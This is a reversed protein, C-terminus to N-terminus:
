KIISANSNEINVITKEDFRFTEGIIEFTNISEDIELFKHEIIPLLSSLTEKSQIVLEIRYKNKQTNIPFISMSLISITYRASGEVKQSIINENGNIKLIIKLDWFNLFELKSKNYINASAFNSNIKLISIRKDDIQTKTIPMITCKSGGGVNVRGYAM